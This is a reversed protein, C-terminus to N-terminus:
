WGFNGLDRWARVSFPESERIFRLTAETENAKKGEDSGMAKAVDEFYHIAFYKAPAAGALSSDDGASSGLKYRLSRQYGPTHSLLPIHEERYWAEFEQPFLTNM